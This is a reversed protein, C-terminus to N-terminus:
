AMHWGHSVIISQGTLANTPFAALAVAMEALDEQTVFEGNVTHSLFINQIVEEETIGHTRALDPLQRELLETRVFGPCITNARVGHAAGEKAVTRCLGLVGHKAVVYPGKQVSAEKSHVSGMYILSGRGQQYMHRLSARTVLFAGDLHVSLVRHWDSLEVEHIPALHQIGANPIAVDLREWREIVSDVGTAVSIEDTVNMVMTMAEGGADEIAHAATELDQENLDALAVRAGEAAFREAITRGIGRGAGTILAVCGDLRM